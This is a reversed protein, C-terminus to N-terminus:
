KIRREESTSHRSILANKLNSYTAQEPDTIIDMVENIVDEPLSSLVHYYKVTDSRTKNIMFVNEIQIFWAAPSRTWFPMLKFSSVSVDERSPDNPETNKPFPSPLFCSSKFTNPQLIPLIM